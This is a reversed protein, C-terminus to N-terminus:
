VEREYYLANLNKNEKNNFHATIKNFVQEPTINFSDDELDFHNWDKLYIHQPLHWACWKDPASKAGFIAISPIKQSVAVHNIGGDNCVLLVSKQLLAAGENFSTKPALIAKTKMLNKMKKADNIEDPAWIIVIKYNFKEQVLDATKAFLNLNWKKRRVPSGPSFIVFSKDELNNEKQWKEIYNKSEDKVHYFLNHEVEKIGLPKLLDFKFRGYYRIPGRPLTLNYLKNWRNFTFGFHKKVKKIHGLRYKAGSFLILRASSTGRIQDIILDYKRKRIKLITKVIEILNQFGDKKEMLVLNDLYPNEELVTKYPKQILYDIQAHKFHNRLEAFYGTNLLIDGFPKQQIILIRKISEKEQKNLVRYNVSM